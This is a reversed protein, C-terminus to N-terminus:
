SVPRLPLRTELVEAVALLDAERHAPAIVQAGVPMGDRLGVPVSIAPLGTISAAATFRCMSTELPETSGDSWGVHPTAALPAVYPTSPTVLVDVDEFLRDFQEQLQKRARRAELYTVASVDLGARLTSLIDPDYPPNSTDLYQRHWATAEPLMLDFGLPVHEALGPIAVESVPYHPRLLDVSALVADIVGPEVNGVCGTALMGVRLARDDRDLAIVSATQARHIESLLVRADAVTRTLFGLSDLTGALPLVGRTDLVGTTPKLGVVGCMAAPMRVSGLTDTGFAWISAGSAVAAASGGSSGGPTRLLDWPNHTQPTRVGFAFEHTHAKGVLLGGLRRSIGVATADRVPRRGALVASGGETPLDETDIMDKVAFPVGHLPSAGDVLSAQLRDALKVLSQRDARSAWVQLSDEIADSRDLVDELLERVSFEGARLAASCELLSLTNLTPM